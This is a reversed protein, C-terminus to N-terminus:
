SHVASAMLFKATRRIARETAALLPLDNVLAGLVHGAFTDGAGTPDRVALRTADLHTSRGEMTVVVGDSGRTEFVIKDHTARRGWSRIRPAEARNHFLFDCRRALAVCLSEPFCDPDDKFIWALRQNPKLGRLVDAVRVAPAAALVVLDAGDLAEKQSAICEGWSLGGPDFRALDPHDPAYVLLCTPTRGDAHRAIGHVDFGESRCNRILAAGDADGGADLVLAVGCGAGLLARGAYLPAGGCRRVGAPSRGCQAFAEEAESATAAMVIRDITAAGAIAVRQSRTSGPAM